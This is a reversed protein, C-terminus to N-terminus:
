EALTVGVVAVPVGVPVTVKLTPVVIRQVAGSVVPVAEHVAELAGTPVSVTRAEYEPSVVKAEEVPVVMRTTVVGLGTIVVFVRGVPATPADYVVEREAEPPM